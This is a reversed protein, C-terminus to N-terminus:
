SIKSFTKVRSPKDLRQFSSTFSPSSVARLLLNDHLKSGWVWIDEGARNWVRRALEGHLPLSTVVITALCNEAAGATIPYTTRVM